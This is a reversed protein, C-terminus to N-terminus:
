DERERGGKNLFSAKRVDQTKRIWVAIKGGAISSHYFRSEDEKRERQIPSGKTMRGGKGSLILTEERGERMLL